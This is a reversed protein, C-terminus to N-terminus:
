VELTANHARCIRRATDSSIGVAIISGNATTVGFRSGIQCWQWITEDREREARPKADPHTSNANIDSM